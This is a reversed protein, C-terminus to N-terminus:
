CIIIDYKYFKHASIERRLRALNLRDNQMQHDIEMRLVNAMDCLHTNHEHM